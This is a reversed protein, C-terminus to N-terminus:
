VMNLKEISYSIYYTGQYLAPHNYNMMFTDYMIIDVVIEKALYISDRLINLLVKREDKKENEYISNALNLMQEYNELYKNYSCEDTNNM